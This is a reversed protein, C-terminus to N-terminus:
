FKKSCSNWLKERESEKEQLHGKEVSNQVTDRWTNQYVYVQDIFQLEATSLWIMGFLNPKKFRVSVSM